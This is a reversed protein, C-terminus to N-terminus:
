EIIYYATNHLLKNLVLIEQSEITKSAFNTEILEKCADKSILQFVQQFEDIKLVPKLEMPYEEGPDVLKSIFFELTLLNSLSAAKDQAKIARDSLEKCLEILMGSDGNLLSPIVDSEV